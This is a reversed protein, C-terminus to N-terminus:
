TIYVYILFVYMYVCIVLSVDFFIYTYWMCICIYLCVYIVGKSSCFSGKSPLSFSGGEGLLFNRYVMSHKRNAARVNLKLLETYLESPKPTTPFLANSLIISNTQKTMKNSHMNNVCNIVEWSSWFLMCINSCKEGYLGKTIIIINSIEKISVILHIIKDEILTHLVESLIIKMGIIQLVKCARSICQFLFIQYTKDYIHFNLDKEKSFSNENSESFLNRDFFENDHEHKKSQSDIKDINYDRISIEIITKLLTCLKEISQFLEAYSNNKENIQIKESKNSTSVIYDYIALL